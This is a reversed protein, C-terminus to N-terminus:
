NYVKSFTNEWSKQWVLYIETLYFPIPYWRFFWQMKQSFMRTFSYKCEITKFGTNNALAPLSIHSHWRVHTEDDIFSFHYWTPTFIIIRWDDKLIRNFEQFLKIQMTTPFHEIVHSCYIVDFKKDEFPITWSNLDHSIVNLGKQKCIEIMEKNYELGYYNINSIHMDEYFKWTACGIDLINDHEKIFSNILKAKWKIMKIVNCFLFRNENINKLLIVM